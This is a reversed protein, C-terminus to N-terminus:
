QEVLLGQRAKIMNEITPEYKHQVKKNKVDVIPQEVTAKLQVTRNQKLENLIEEKLQKKLETIDVQKVVESDQETDKQIEQKVEKNEQTKVTKVEAAVQQKQLETNIQPQVSADQKQVEETMKNVEMVEKKITLNLPCTKGHKAQCVAWASEEKTRGEQPKFDPDAMIARVCEEVDKPKEIMDLEFQKAIHGYTANRNSQIPVLTGELLEADTWQKYTKGEIKVEEFGKPIAGISIGPNLGMELAEEVQKQVQASLPNAEKSFFMPKAQLASHEGKMIAKFEKWGGIWKEMKNEHNALMPLTANKAWKNILGKSMLEDDRDISTDSLIASFSGDTLKTIPMWLTRKEFTDM